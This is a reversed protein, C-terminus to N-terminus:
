WTTSVNLKLGTLINKKVNILMILLYHIAILTILVACHMFYLRILVGGCLLKILMVIIM